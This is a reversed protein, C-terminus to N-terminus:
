AAGRTDISYSSGGIPKIKVRAGAIFVPGAYDASITESLVWGTGNEVYIEISGGGLSCSFMVDRSVNSYDFIQETNFQKM